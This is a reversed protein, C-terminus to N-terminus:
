RNQMSVLVNPTAVVGATTGTSTTIATVGPTQVLSMNLTGDNAVRNRATLVVAAGTGGVTYATTVDPHDLAARIEAAAQAATQGLTLRVPFKRPSGGIAAGTVTVGVDCTKTVGGAAVVTLTEVQAVGAVGSTTNASTAADTLGVSTDNAYEVNLNTTALNAAAVRCTLAVAANTRSTTFFASLDADGEIAVRMAEASQAPVWGDGVAVVLVKPSWAQGTATVTVEALGAGSATISGVITATVVQSTVGDVGATTQVATPGDTL